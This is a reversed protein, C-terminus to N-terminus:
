DNIDAIEKGLRQAWKEWYAKREEETMAALMTERQQVAAVAQAALIKQEESPEHLCDSFKM